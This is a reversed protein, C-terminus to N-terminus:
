RSNVILGLPEADTVAILESDVGAVQKAIFPQMVSVRVVKSCSHALDLANSAQIAITTDYM